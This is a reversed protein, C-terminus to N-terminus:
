KREMSRLMQLIKEDTEVAEELRDAKRLMTAYERLTAVEESDSSALSTSYIELADNLCADAASFDRMAVYIRAQVRRVAAYRPHERGLVKETLVKAEKLLSEARKHDGTALYVEGVTSLQSAYNPHEKGLVKEYLQLGEVALAEAKDYEGSLAYVQALSAIAGATDPHDNGKLERSYAIAEQFLPKAKAYDGSALYISGLNRLNQIRETDNDGQSKLLRSQGSIAYSFYPESNKLEEDLALRFRVENRVAKTAKANAEKADAEASIARDREKQVTALANLAATEAQSALQTNSQPIPQQNSHDSSLV